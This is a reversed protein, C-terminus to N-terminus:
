LFNIVILCKSIELPFKKKCFFFKFSHFIGPIYFYLYNIFVQIDVVWICSYDRTYKEGVGERLYVGNQNQHNNSHTSKSKVAYSHM